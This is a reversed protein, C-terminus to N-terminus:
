KDIPKSFRRAIERAWSEKFFGERQGLTREKFFATQSFSVLFGITECTLGGPFVGLSLKYKFVLTIQFFVHEISCMRAIRSKSVLNFFNTPFLWKMPNEFYASELLFEGKQLSSDSLLSLSFFSEKKPLCLTSSNRRKWIMCRKPKFRFLLYM